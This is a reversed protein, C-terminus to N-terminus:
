YKVYNNSGRIDWSDLLIQKELSLEEYGNGAGLSHCLCCFNMNLSLDRLPVLFQIRQVDEIKGELKIALVEM